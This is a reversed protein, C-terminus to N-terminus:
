LLRSKKLNRRQSYQETSVHEEFRKILAQVKIFLPRDVESDVPDYVPYHDEKTNQTIPVPRGKELFQDYALIRMEQRSFEKVLINVMSGLPAIYIEEPMQSGLVEKWGVASFGQLLVSSGKDKQDNM